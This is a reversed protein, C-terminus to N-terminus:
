QRYTESFHLPNHYLFKLVCPSIEQNERLILCVLLCQSVTTLRGTWASLRVLNRYASERVIYMHIACSSSGKLIMHVCTNCELHPILNLKSTNRSFLVHELVLTMSPAYSSTLLRM